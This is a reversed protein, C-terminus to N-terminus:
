LIMVTKHYSLNSKMVFQILGASALVLGFLISEQYKKLQSVCAHNM